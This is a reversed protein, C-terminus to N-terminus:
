GPSTDSSSYTFRRTLSETVLNPFSSTSTLLAAIPRMPGKARLGGHLVAPIHHRSVQVGDVETRSFHQRMQQFRLAGDHVYRRYGTQTSVPPKTRVIRRLAAMVFKVRERASSYPERPTRMLATAGLRVGVSALTSISFLAEAIAAKRSRRGIPLLAVGSSTAPTIANRALSSATKILPTLRGM